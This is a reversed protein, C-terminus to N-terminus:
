QTMAEISPLVKEVELRTNHICDNISVGQYSAGILSLPINNVSIYTSMDEVSQTHGVVYQPICNKVVGAIVRFPKKNIHLQERVSDVAIKGFEQPDVANADGFMEKFWAGGMMCTIRTNEARQGNHVPFICSEYLVGMVKSPECSPVLHGFGETSLVNGEYQLNVVGVSVSPNHRLLAALQHHGSPLLAAFKRAPLASFIYDVEEEKDAMKVKVKSSTDSFELGTCPSNLRIDVGDNQRLRDTLTEPLAQLGHDLSWMSWKESKYREVLKSGRADPAKKKPALLAGKIISDYQQEWKFIEPFCAKVSLQRSNGSYIGRCLPDIAYTAIEDGFRRRFFSDITEDDVKHSAAFPERWGLRLLSRSFPPQRTLLSSPSSPLRCLERNVYIFRNKTAQHSRNIPLIRDSLGLEEAQFLMM